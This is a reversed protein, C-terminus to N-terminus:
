GEHMEGACQALADPHQRWETRFPAVAVSSVSHHPIGLGPEEPLRPVVLPFRHDGRHRAFQPTARVRSIRIDDGGAALVFALSAPPLIACRSEAGSLCPGNGPYDPQRSSRKMILTKM